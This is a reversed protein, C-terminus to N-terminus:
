QCDLYHTSLSSNALFYSGDRLHGLNHTKVWYNVMHQIFRIDGIFGIECFM